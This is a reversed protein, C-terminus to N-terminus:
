FNAKYIKQKVFAILCYQFKRVCIHKIYWKTSFKRSLEFIICCKILFENTNSNNEILLKINAFKTTRVSIHMLFDTNKGSKFKLILNPILLFNQM